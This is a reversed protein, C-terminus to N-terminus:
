FPDPRTPIDGWPRGHCQSSRNGSPWGRRGDRGRFQRHDQLRNGRNRQNGDARSNWEEVICPSESPTELIGPVRDDETVRSAFMEEFNPVAKSTDTM